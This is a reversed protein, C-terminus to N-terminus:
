VPSSVVESNIKKGGGEEEDEKIPERSYKHSDKNESCVYEEPQTHDSRSNENSNSSMFHTTSTSTQASGESCRKQNIM